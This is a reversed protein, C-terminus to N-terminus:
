YALNEKPHCLSSFHWGYFHILQTKGLFYQHGQSSDKLFDANGSEVTSSAGETGPVMEELRDILNRDGCPM